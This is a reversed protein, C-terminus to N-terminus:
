RTSCKPLRGTPLTITQTKIGPKGKNAALFEEAEKKNKEATKKRDEQQYAM